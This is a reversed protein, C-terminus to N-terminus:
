ILIPDLAHKFEAVAEDVTTEDSFHFNWKGSYPNLSQGGVNGNALEPYVFRCAIWGVDFRDESGSISIYIPGYKTVPIIYDYISTDLNNRAGHMHIMNKIRDVFIQSNKTTNPM